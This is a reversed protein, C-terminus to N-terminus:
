KDVVEEICGGGWHLNITDGGGGGPPDMCGFPEAMALLYPWWGGASGACSLASIVNQTIDRYGTLINVCILLSSGHCYNPNVTKEVINYARLLDRIKHFMIASARVSTDASNQHDDCASICIARGGSAGGYLAVVHSPHHDEWKYFGERNIRCLYPLDLLTGSFCTDMISHLKAGHPLPAVLITNVEDDLIKGAVSYDDYGDKEDGDYDVVHFGHGLALLKGGHKAYLHDKGTGPYWTLLILPEMICLLPDVGKGTFLLASAAYKLLRQKLGSEYILIGDFEKAPPMWESFSSLQSDGDLDESALSISMCLLNSNGFCCFIMTQWGNRDVPGDVYSLNRPELM